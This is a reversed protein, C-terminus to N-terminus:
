CASTALDARREKSAVGDDDFWRWESGVAIQLHTLQGLLEERWAHQLNQASVIVESWPKCGVRARVLDAESARSESSLFDHFTGRLRQLSDSELQLFIRIKAVTRHSIKSLPPLSGAMTVLFTSMLLTAALTRSKGIYISIAFQGNYLNGRKSEQVRALNAKGNLSDIDVLGDM